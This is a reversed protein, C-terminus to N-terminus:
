PWIGLFRWVLHHHLRDPHQRHHLQIVNQSDASVHWIKETEKLRFLHQRARKVVTKTHRSRSLKNTIHVCLFKFGEVQEVVTGDILVPTNEARWKRYDM